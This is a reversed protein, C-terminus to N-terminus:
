APQFFGWLKERESVHLTLLSNLLSLWYMEGWPLMCRQLSTISWTVSALSVMIFTSSWLSFTRFSSLLFPVTLFDELSFRLSRAYSRGGWRGLFRQREWRRERRTPTFSSSLTKTSHNAAYLWVCGGYRHACLLAVPRSRPVPVPEREFCLFM